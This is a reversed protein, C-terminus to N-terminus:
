DAAAPTIEAVQETKPEASAARVVVPRYGGEVVSYYAPGSVGNLHVHRILSPTATGAPAALALVLTAAISSALLALKTQSM